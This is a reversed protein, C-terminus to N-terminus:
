SEVLCAKRYAVPTVGYEKKFLKIFHSTNSFNCERGIQAISKGTSTLLLRAHMLRQRNNWKHPSENFHKKFEKKFATLSRNCKQALEQVSIDSFVNGYVTQEFNALASDTNDLLCKKLCNEEHAIILYALEMLKLNEAAEDKGFVDNVLYHDISTFFHKLVEGAPCCISSRNHCNPCDHDNLIELQFNLSLQNLIRNIQYNDYFFVIQEFPKNPEPIDEIYHNGASLYYAHGKEVVRCMDGHHIHRKGHLIYGIAHRHLTTVQVGNRYGQTYKVITPQQQASTNAEM